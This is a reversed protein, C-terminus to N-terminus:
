VGGLDDEDMDPAPAANQARRGARMAQEEDPSFDTQGPAPPAPPLKPKFTPAKRSHGRVPFLKEEDKSKRAM